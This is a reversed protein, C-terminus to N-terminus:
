NVFFLYFGIGLSVFKNRSINIALIQSMIVNTDGKTKHNVQGSKDDRRRNVNM